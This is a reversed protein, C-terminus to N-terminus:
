PRNFFAGVLVVVICLLFFPLVLQTWLNFAIM